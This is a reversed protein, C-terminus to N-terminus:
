LRSLDIAISSASTTDVPPDPRSDVVGMQVQCVRPGRPMVSLEIARLVADRPILLAAGFRFAEVIHGFYRLPGRDNCRGLTRPLREVSGGTGHLVHSLGCSLTHRLGVARENRWALTRPLDPSPQCSAAVRRTGSPWLTRAPSTTQHHSENRADTTVFM